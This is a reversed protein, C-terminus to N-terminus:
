IAISPKGQRSVSLDIELSEETNDHSLLCRIRFNLDHEGTGTPNVEVAKVRPEFAIVTDRIDQCIRSRLDASSLTADNFDQLGLGPSSQSCGRRANLLWALHQKIAQARDDLLQRRTRTRLPALEPDLRDFLSGQALKRPM